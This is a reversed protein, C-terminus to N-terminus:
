RRRRRTQSRVWRRLGAVPAAVKKRPRLFAYAVYLAGAAAGGILVNKFSFASPLGPIIPAADPDLEATAFVNDPQADSAKQILQMKSAPLSIALM